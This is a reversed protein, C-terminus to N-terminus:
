VAAANGNLARVRDFFRDVTHHERYHSLSLAAQRDRLDTSRALEDLRV